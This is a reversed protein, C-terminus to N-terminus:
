KTAINMAHSGAYLCYIMVTINTMQYAVRIQYVNQNDYPFPSIISKKGGNKILSHTFPLLQINDKIHLSCLIRIKREMKLTTHANQEYCM